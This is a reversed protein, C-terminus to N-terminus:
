RFSVIFFFLNITAYIICQVVIKLEKKKGALYYGTLLPIWFTLCFNILGIKSLTLKPLGNRVLYISALIDMTGLGCRMTLLIICFKRLHPNRYFGKVEKLTDIFSRLEVVEEPNTEKIIIVFLGLFIGFCGLIRFYSSLELM